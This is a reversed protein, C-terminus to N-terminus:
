YLLAKTVGEDMQKIKKGKQDSYLLNGGEAGIEYKLLLIRGDQKMGYSRVGTDIERVKGKSTVSHIDGSVQPQTHVDTAYVMVAGTKDYTFAGVSVNESLKVTNSNNYAMLNVTGATKSYGSAFRVVAGDQSVDCSYVEDSIRKEIGVYGNIITLTFLAGKGNEEDYGGIYAVRSFDDSADFQVRRKEAVTAVGNAIKQSANENAGIVYYDNKGNEYEKTYIVAAEDVRVREIRTIDKVMPNTQGTEFDVYSISQFGDHYDSYAYVAEAKKLIHPALYAKQACLQPTESTKKAYLNYIGTKMDYEKAYLYIGKPTTGFVFAVQEDLHINQESADKGLGRVCLDGTNVTPNFNKIFLASLSDQSFVFNGACVDWQIPTIEKKGVTWYCLEGHYGTDDTDKLFLAAKGDASLQIDYYVNKAVVTKSKVSDNQLYVLDGRGTNMDVNELFFTYLGDESVHILQKETPKAVQYRKADKLPEAPSNEAAGVSIFSESLLVPKKEYVMYLQNGKTYVTPYHMDGSAMNAFLNIAGIILAVVVIAVGLGFLLRGRQRKDVTIRRPKASRLAAAKSKETRTMRSGAPKQGGNKRQQRRLEARQAAEEMEARTRQRREPRPETQRQREPHLLEESRDRRAGLDMDDIAQRIEGADKFTLTYQLDFDYSDKSPDIASFRRTEQNNTQSKSFGPKVPAHCLPCVETNEPLTIDCKPCKM